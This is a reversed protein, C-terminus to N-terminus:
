TPPEGSCGPKRRNIDRYLNPAPFFQMKTTRVTVDPSTTLLWRFVHVHNMDHNCLMPKPSVQRLHARKCPVCASAVHGKTKRQLKPSPQLPAGQQEAPTRSTTATATAAVGYGSPPQPGPGLTSGPAPLYSLQQHMTPGQQTYSPPRATVAESRSFAYPVREHPEGLFSRGQPGAIVNARHLQPDTRAAPIGRAADRTTAQYSGQSREASEQIAKPRPPPPSESMPPSPYDRSRAASESDARAWTLDLTFRALDSRGRRHGLSTTSIDLPRGLVQM